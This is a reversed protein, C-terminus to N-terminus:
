RASSNQNTIGHGIKTSAMKVPVGHDELAQRLEFANPIPVRRDNEGHQILTPTRAKAIYNIAFRRTSKRITWPTAHLNNHRSVAHHGYERLVDDM